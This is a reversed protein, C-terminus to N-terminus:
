ALTRCVSGVSTPQASNLPLCASIASIYACSIEKPPGRPGRRNPGRENRGEKAVNCDEIFHKDSGCARCVYGPRPKKGGTDGTEFKTPCDRILHDTQSCFLYFGSASILDDGVGQCIRCTYGEPVPAKEPKEPCDKLYHQKHLSDANSARILHLSVEESSCM